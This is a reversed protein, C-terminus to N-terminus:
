FLMFFFFVRVLFCVLAVFTTMTMYQVFSVAVPGGITSEVSHTQRNLLEYGLLCVVCSRRDRGVAAGHQLEPLCAGGNYHCCCPPRFVSKKNCRIIPVLLVARHENREQSSGDDVHPINFPWVTNQKGKSFFMAASLVRYM